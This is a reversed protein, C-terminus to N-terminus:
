YVGILDVVIVIDTDKPLGMQPNGDPGFGMDPPITLARRGGVKMGPMGDVLGPFNGETMPIQIPESAWTSDLAVLSDGRFLVLHLVATQGEELEAGDGEILDVSSVETAGESADVGAETPEDAPDPSKIVSRIDVVFTLADDPQIIGSPPPNAGYAMEAPIDLQIQSGDAVGVLGENWGAIVSAQCVNIVPFPTFRDWSNDFETGDESRVGVYDVVVTDGAESVPGDGKRLVTVQLESPLEAPIEVAPKDPNTPAPVTSQAATGGDDAGASSDAATADTAGEDASAGTSNETDGTDGTDATAGNDSGCAAGLLTLSVLAVLTRRM